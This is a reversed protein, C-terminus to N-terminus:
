IAGAEGNDENNSSDSARRSNSIPNKNNRGIAAVITQAAKTRSLLNSSTGGSQQQSREKNSSSDKRSLRQHSSSGVGGSAEPSPTRPRPPPPADVEDEESTGVTAGTCDMEGSVDEDLKSDDGLGTDLSRSRRFGEADAIWSDRRVGIPTVWARRSVFPANVPSIGASVRRRSVLPSIPMPRPSISRTPSSSRPEGRLLRWKSERSLWPQPSPSPSRRLQSSPSCNRNLIRNKFLLHKM